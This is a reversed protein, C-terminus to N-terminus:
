SKGRRWAYVGAVVATAGTLAAYAVLLLGGAPGTGGSIMMGGDSEVVTQVHSVSPLGVFRDLVTIAVLVYLVATIAATRWPKGAARSAIWGITVGIAFTAVIKLLIQWVVPPGSAYGSPVVMVLANFGLHLAVAAVFAALGWSWANFMRWLTLTTRDLTSLGDGTM